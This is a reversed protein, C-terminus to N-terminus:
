RRVAGISLAVLRSMMSLLRSLRMGNRPDCSSHSRTASFRLRMSSRMSVSIASTLCTLSLTAWSKLVGEMESEKGIEAYFIAIVHVTEQPM